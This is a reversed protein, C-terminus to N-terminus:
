RPPRSPPENRGRDDRDVRTKDQVPWEVRIEILDPDGQAWLAAPQPEASDDTPGPEHGNGDGARLDHQERDSADHRELDQGRERDPDREDTEDDEGSERRTSSRRDALRCQGDVCLRIETVSDGTSERQGYREGIRGARRHGIGVRDIGIVIGPLGLPEDATLAEVRCGGQPEDWGTEEPRSQRATGRQRREGRGEEENGQNENRVRLVIGNGPRLRDAVFRAM